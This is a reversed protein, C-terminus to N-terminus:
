QSDPEIPDSERNEDTGGTFILENKGLQEQILELLFGGLVYEVEGMDIMDDDAYNTPKRHIDYDFKLSVSNEDGHEVFKVEGYSFIMGEYKGELFKLATTYQGSAEVKEVFTYKIM